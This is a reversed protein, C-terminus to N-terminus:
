TPKGGTATGHGAARTHKEADRASNPGTGHEACNLCRWSYTITTTM